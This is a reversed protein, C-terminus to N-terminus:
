FSDSLAGLLGGIGGGGACAGLLLLCNDWVTNKAFVSSSVLIITFFVVAVASLVIAGLVARKGRGRNHARYDKTALWHIIRAVKVFHGLPEPLLKEVAHGAVDKATEHANPPVSGKSFRGHLEMGIAALFGALSLCCSLYLFIERAETSSWYIAALVLFPSAALVMIAGIKILVRWLPRRVGKDHATQEQAPAETGPDPSPVTIRSRFRRSKNIPM